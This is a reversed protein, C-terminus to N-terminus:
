TPVGTAEIWHFGPLQEAQYFLRASATYQRKVDNLYHARDLLKVAEQPADCSAVAFKEEQATGANSVNFITNGIIQYM